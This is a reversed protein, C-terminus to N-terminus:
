RGEELTYGDDARTQRHHGCLNVRLVVIRTGDRVTVLRVDDDLNDHEGDRCEKCQKTGKTHAHVAGVTRAVQAEIEAKTPAWPSRGRDLLKREVECGDRHLQGVSASCGCIHGPEGKVALKPM